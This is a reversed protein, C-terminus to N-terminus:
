LWGLGPCVGGGDALPAPPLFETTQIQIIINLIIQQVSQIHAKRITKNYNNIRIRIEINELEIETEQIIFILSRAIKCICKILFQM